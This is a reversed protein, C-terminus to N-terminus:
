SNFYSFIELILVRLKKKNRYADQIKLDVFDESNSLHIQIKSLIPSNFSLLTVLSSVM